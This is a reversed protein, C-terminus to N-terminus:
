HRELIKSSIKFFIKACSIYKEILSNRFLEYWTITTLYNHPYFLFLM